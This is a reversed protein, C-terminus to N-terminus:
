MELLTNRLDAKHPFLPDELGSNLTFAYTDFVSKNTYGGVWAGKRNNEQVECKEGGKETREQPLQFKVKFRNCKM